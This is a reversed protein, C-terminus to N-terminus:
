DISGNLIINKIFGGRYGICLVIRKFGFSEVYDILIVLVPVGNIVIMSKPRVKAVSQIRVGKGGCLILVDTNSPIHTIM